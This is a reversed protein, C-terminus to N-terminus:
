RDDSGCVKQDIDLIAVTSQDTHSIITQNISGYLILHILSVVEKNPHSESRQVLAPKVGQEDMVSTVFSLAADEQHSGYKSENLMKIIRPAYRAPHKEILAKAFDDWGSGWQYMRHLFLIELHNLPLLFRNVGLAITILIISIAFFMMMM